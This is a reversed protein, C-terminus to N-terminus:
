RLTESIDSNNILEHGWSLYILSSGNIFAQLYKMEKIDDFTPCRSGIKNLIEKRLRALVTPHQSLAYLAFTMVSASQVSSSDRTNESTYLKSYRPSYRIKSDAHKKIM